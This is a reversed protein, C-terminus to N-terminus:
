RQLALHSWQPIESVVIEIGDGEGVSEELSSELETGAVEYPMLAAPIMPITASAITPTATTAAIM